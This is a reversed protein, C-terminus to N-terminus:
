VSASDSRASLGAFLSRLAGLRLRVRQAAVDITRRERALRRLEDAAQPDDLEELLRDIREGLRRSRADARLAWLYGLALVDGMEALLCADARESSVDSCLREIRREIEPLEHM